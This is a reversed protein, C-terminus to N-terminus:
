MLSGIDNMYSAETHECGDYCLVMINQNHIKMSAKKLKKLCLMFSVEFHEPFNPHEYLYAMVSNNYNFYNLFNSIDKSNEIILFM